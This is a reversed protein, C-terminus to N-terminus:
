KNVKGSIAPLHDYCRAKLKHMTYLHFWVVPIRNFRLQVFLCIVYWNKHHGRMSALGNRLEMYGPLPLLRKLIVFYTSSPKLFSHGWLNQRLHAANNVLCSFVYAIVDHLWQRKPVSPPLDHLCVNMHGRLTDAICLAYPMSCIGCAMLQFSTHVNAFQAMKTGKKTQWLWALLMALAVVATMSQCIQQCIAFDCPVNTCGAWLTGLGGGNFSSIVVAAHHRKRLRLFNEQTHPQATGNRHWTGLPDHTALQLTM